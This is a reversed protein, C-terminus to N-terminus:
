EGGTTLDDVYYHKKCKRAFEPDINEYREAHVGIVGNLLFQTCTAGFRVRCFRYAIFRSNEEFVNEYWLFRLLDRHPEEVEIHLYAKKIDAILM